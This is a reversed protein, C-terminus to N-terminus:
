FLDSRNARRWQASVLRWGVEEQALELEFRYFDFRGLLFEEESQVPTGVMAAYLTLSAREDSPFEIEKVLLSLHLTRQNKFLYGLLARLRGKDQSRRDLYRDSVFNMTAELDRSEIAQTAQTILARIQAEPDEEVSEQRASCGLLLTTVLLISLLAPTARGIARMIPYFLRIPQLPERPIPISMM